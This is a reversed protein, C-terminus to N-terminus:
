EFKIGLTLAVMILNEIEEELFNQSKNLIIIRQIADKLLPTNTDNVLLPHSENIKEFLLHCVKKGEDLDGRLPLLKIFQSAMTVGAANNDCQFYIFKGMAGLANDFTEENADNKPRQIINIIMALITEKYKATFIEKSVRQCIAGYGYVVSQLIDENINQSKKSLEIFTDIFQLLENEKSFELFDDFFCIASLIPQHYITKLKDSDLKALSDRWTQLFFDFLSSKIVPTLDDGIVKFINGSLEMVRRNIENLREIDAKQDDEDNEDYCDGNAETISLIQEAKEKVNKVISNLINYLEMIFGETFIKKDHILSTFDVFTKLYTKIERYYSCTVNYKFVGLIENQVFQLIKNREEDTNCANMCSYVSKIATKRLKRSYPFKLLDKALFLFKETFPFFNTGMNLCIDNLITFSSIKNQLAFTHLSLKKTNTGLSVVISGIKAKEAEDKEDEPIYEHVDADEVVLGIDAQIYKALYPFLFELIPIFEKGMSLSIHSYSNLIALVQPDEEPLSSLDKAFAEAIEKLDSMYKSAEESVSSFLYSITEICHSKLIKQESTQPILSYYLKKLGPMIKDYYPSFDKELINALVSLNNLSAEQLPPYSLKLSEEFLSSLLQILQESYPQLISCNEDQDKNEVLLGRLFEVLVKCAQAKVKLSSEKESMLTALGTLINNTYEKQPKPATEKLLACFAVLAAYRVRPHANVLGTSIFNMLELLHSNFVKSCGEAMCALVFFGAHIEIWNQSQLFKQIYKVTTEMFFKGGLDISLREIGSKVIYFMEERDSEDEDIMKEWNQINNENDIELLLQFLLPIFINLFNNSKRLVAPIKKTLSYVLELASSRITSKIKKEMEIKCVIDIFIEIKGKWFKPHTDTLYNLSDLVIKGSEEDQSILVLLNNLIIEILPTFALVNNEEKLNILFQATAKFTSVRVKIDSDQLGKSFMQKFDEISGKIVDDKLAELDCLVEIVYIGFQRALPQPMNFWTIIEAFNDKMESIQYLQALADAIRQLNKWEKGEEFSVYSKLINKMTEIQPVTLNAKIDKSDLYVKRFMLTSLQSVNKNPSSMGAQFIPLSQDVPMKKIQDLDKEATERTEKNASMLNEFFAIYTSPNM